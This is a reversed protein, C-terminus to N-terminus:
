RQDFDIQRAYSFGKGAVGDVGYYLFYGSISIAMYCLFVRARARGAKAHAFTFFLSLVIAYPIFTLIGVTLYFATNSEMISFEQKAQVEREPGGL